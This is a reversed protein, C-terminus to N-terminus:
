SDRWGDVDKSTSFSTEPARCFYLRSFDMNIMIHLLITTKRFLQKIKIEQVCYMTGPAVKKWKLSTPLKWGVSCTYPSNHITKKVANKLDSQKMEWKGGGQCSAHIVYACTAYPKGPWSSQAWLSWLQALRSKWLGAEIRCLWLVKLTRGHYNRGALQCERGSNKRGM